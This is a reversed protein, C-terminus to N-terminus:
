GILTSARIDASSAGVSIEFTGEPVLWRSEAVSFYSLDDATLRFSVTRSQSPGLPIREFNRLEKSCGPPQCTSSPLKVYLQVVEHGFHQGTNTVDVTVSYAHPGASEVRLNSYAFSTYSLGHGFAYVPKKGTAEFWRYDILIGESYTVPDTSYVVDAAYDARDAAVTFPLRGSPNVDGFLVDAISNGTEQGPMLAYIIAKVNPLTSWGTMDVAGPSHIVVITEKIAAVAEILAAGGHWLELDNRDGANGEVTIYGEGSDAFVFVVAVDAAKAASVAATLETNNLASTVSIGSKKARATVGDVPAVIYPFYTTGSGWGQAVTGDICGHDSCGNLSAPAAADEGIVAIKKVGSLPLAGGDN